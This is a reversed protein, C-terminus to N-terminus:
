KQIQDHKTAKRKFDPFQDNDQTRSSPILIVGHVNVYCQLQTTMVSDYCQWLWIELVIM